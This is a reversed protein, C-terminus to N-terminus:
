TAAAKRAVIGILMPVGALLASAIAGVSEGQQAAAYAVLLLGAPVGILLPWRAINWNGKPQKARWSSITEPREAQRVFMAFSENFLRPMPELTVLRRRVLSRLVLSAQMNLFSGRAIADLAVREAQTSAFWLQEYYEILNVRLYDIAAAVTPLQYSEVWEVFGSDQVSLGTGVPVHVKPPLLTELIHVPLHRLESIMAAVIEPTKPPNALPAPNSSSNTPRPTDQPTVTRFTQFFRAWRLEERKNALDVPDTKEADVVELIRELPTMDSYVVIHDLNGAIMARDAQELYVLAAQRRVEDRLLLSLGFFQVLRKNNMRANADEKVKSNTLDSEDKYFIEDALDIRVCVAANKQAKEAQKMLKDRAPHDGGVILIRSGKPFDTTQDKIALLPVGFGFLTQGLRRPLWWVLMLLPVFGFLLLAAWQSWELQWPIQYTGRCPKRARRCQSPEDPEPALKLNNQMQWVVPALSAKPAISRTGAQPLFWSREEAVRATPVKDPTTKLSNSIRMEQLTTRAIDAGVSRNGVVDNQELTFARADAWVLMAPFIALLAILATLVRLYRRETLVTLPAPTDAIKGFHLTLSVLCAVIAAFAVLFAPGFTGTVFALFGCLLAAAVVGGFVFRAAEAYAESGQEHPWLHSWRFDADRGFKPALRCYVLLGALSLGVALVAFALYGWLSLMITSQALSDSDTLHQWTLLVWHSGRVNQAAFIARQGDYRAEFNISCAQGACGEAQGLRVLRDIVEEGPDAQDAFYELGTHGRQYHFIVPLRRDVGAWGATDVVMYHVPKPTVAASFSPLQFTAVAFNREGYATTIPTFRASIVATDFGELQSRVGAITYDFDLYNAKSPDTSRNKVQFLGTSDRAMQFYDRGSVDIIASRQKDAPCVQADKPAVTYKATVDPYISQKDPDPNLGASGLLIVNDFLHCEQDSFARGAAGARSRLWLLHGLQKSRESIREGAEIAMANAVDSVETMARNRAAMVDAAFLFGYLVIVLAVPLGFLIAFIEAPSSSEAPGNLVFRLFPLLVALFLLALTLETRQLPMTGLWRATLSARPMLAVIYCGGTESSAAGAANRTSGAAGGSGAPAAAAKGSPAAEGTRCPQNVANAVVFPKFYALYDVGGLRLAAVDSIRGIKGSASGESPGEPKTPDAIGIQEFIGRQVTGSPLFGDISDVTLPTDGVQAVIKGRDDTILFNSIDAGDINTNILRALPVRVLFCRLPVEAQMGSNRDLGESITGSVVFRLGQGPHTGEEYGLSLANAKLARGEVDVCAKQDRDPEYYHIFYRGIDPHENIRIDGDKPNALYRSRAMSQIDGPWTELGHAAINVSHFNRKHTSEVIFESHYLISIGLILAPITLLIGAIKVWYPLSKQSIKPKANGASSSDIAGAMHM